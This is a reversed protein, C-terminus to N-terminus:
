SPDPAAREARVPGSGGASLDDLTGFHMLFDFTGKIRQLDALDDVVFKVQLGAAQARRRAEGIGASAIDVGTVDFGHQALFIANRGTGCGLDIPIRRREVLKVLEEAPGADYPARFYRYVIEYVWKMIKM